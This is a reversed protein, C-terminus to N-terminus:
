KMTMVTTLLVTCMVYVSLIEKKDDGRIIPTVTCIISASSIENNYSNSIKLIVIVHM